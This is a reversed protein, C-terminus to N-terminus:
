VPEFHRWESEESENKHEEEEDEEERDRTIIVGLHKLLHVTEIYLPNDMGVCSFDQKFREALAIRAESPIMEEIEKQTYREVVSKMENLEKVLLKIAEDKDQSDEIDEIDELNLDAVSTTLDRSFELNDAEFVTNLYTQEHDRQKMSM